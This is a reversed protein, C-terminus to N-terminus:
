TDALPGRASGYRNPGPTGRVFGLGLVFALWLIVGGLYAAVSLADSLGLAAAWAPVLLWWGTRGIDHLRRLVLCVSLWAIVAEAALLLVAVYGVAWPLTLAFAKAIVHALWGAVILSLLPAWYWRRSTRGAGWFSLIWGRLMVEAGLNWFSLLVIRAECDQQLFVVYRRAHRWAPEL